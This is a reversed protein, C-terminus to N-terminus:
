KPFRRAKYNDVIEDRPSHGNQFVIAAVIANRIQANATGCLGKMAPPTLPATAPNSAIKTEVIRLTSSGINSRGAVGYHQKNRLHRNMVSINQRGSAYWFLHRSKM